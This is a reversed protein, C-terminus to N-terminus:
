SDEKHINYGKVKTKKIKRATIQTIIGDQIYLEVSGFSQVVELANDLEDLLTQSIRKKTDKM